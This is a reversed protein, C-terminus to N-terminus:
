AGKQATRTETEPMAEGKPMIEWYKKADARSVTASKYHREIEKSQETHGMMEALKDRNAFHKFHYSAFSHRAVDQTWRTKGMKKLIRERARKFATPNDVVPGSIKRYKNLWSALNPTIDVHRQMGPKSTEALVSIFKEDEDDLCINRWDLGPIQEQAHKKRASALAKKAERFNIGTESENLRKRRKKQLPTDFGRKRVLELRKKEDLYATRADDLIDKAAKVAPHELNYGGTLEAPRLGAWFLIALGAAIQPEESEAIRLASEVESPSWVVPPKRRQTPVDIDKAPNIKITGDKKWFGFFAGLVKKWARRSPIGSAREDVFGKVDDEAIWGIPRDAGIAEKFNALKSRLERITEPRNGIDQRKKLFDAVAEELTKKNGDDPHREEWFRLVEALKDGYKDFAKKAEIKQTQTLAYAGLGENKVEIAKGQIHAKAEDITEWGIRERNSGPLNNDSQWFVKGTDMIKCKRISWGKYRESKLIKVRSPKKRKASM